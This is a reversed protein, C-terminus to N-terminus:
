QTLGLLGAVEKKLKELPLPKSFCVDAGFKKMKEHNEEDL